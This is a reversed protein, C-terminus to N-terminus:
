SISSHPTFLSLSLCTSWLRRPGGLKRRATVLTDEFTTTSGRRNASMQRYM